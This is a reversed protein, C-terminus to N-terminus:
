THRLKIGEGLLFKFPTRKIKRSHKKVVSRYALVAELVFHAPCRKGFTVTADCRHYQVGSKRWKQVVKAGSWRQDFHEIFHPSNSSFILWVTIPIEVDELQLDGAYGRITASKLVEVEICCFEPLTATLEHV